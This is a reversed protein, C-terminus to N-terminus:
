VQPDNFKRALDIPAWKTTVVRTYIVPDAENLQICTQLTTQTVENFADGPHCHLINQISRLFYKDQHPNSISASTM